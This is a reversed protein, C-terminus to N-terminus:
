KVEAVKEMMGVIVKPDAPLLALIEEMSKARVVKVEDIWVCFHSYDILQENAADLCWGHLTGISTPLPSPLGSVVVDAAAVVCGGFDSAVFVVDPRRLFSADTLYRRNELNIRLSSHDRKIGTSRLLFRCKLLDRHNLVSILRFDVGM